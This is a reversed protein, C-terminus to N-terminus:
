INKWKMKNKKEISIELRRKAYRLIIYLNHTSEIYCIGLLYYEHGHGLFNIYCINTDDFQHMTSFYENDHM